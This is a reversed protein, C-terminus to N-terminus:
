QPGAEDSWRARAADDSDKAAVWSTSGDAFEERKWFPAETKLYDMLYEAAAFAARRDVDFPLDAAVQGDAGLEAAFAVGAQRDAPAAFAVTGAAVAGTLAASAALFGEGM